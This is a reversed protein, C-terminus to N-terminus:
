IQSEIRDKESLVAEEIKQFEVEFNDIKEGATQIENIKVILDTSLKKEEQKLQELKDHETNAFEKAKELNTETKINNEISALIEFQQEWIKQHEKNMQQVESVLQAEKEM